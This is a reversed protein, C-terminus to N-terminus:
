EPAKLASVLNLQRLRRLVVLASVASAMVVILTAFAYNHMTLVVPLRVTETNISQVLFTAFGTGLLLGLSGGALAILLAEMLFSLLIDRRRFGLLRMVAIDKIKHESEEWKGLALDGTILKVLRIDYAM